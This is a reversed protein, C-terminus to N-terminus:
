LVGFLSVIGSTLTGSNAIVRLANVTTNATAYMGSLYDMSPSTGTTSVRGGYASSSVVGAGSTLNCLNFAYNYYVATGPTSTAFLGTAANFNTLTATNYFISFGGSLYGTAIYSSGGNISIQLQIGSTTSTLLNSILLYYNNYTSTIGTTFNLASSASATQTQILNRGPLYNIANNTVM